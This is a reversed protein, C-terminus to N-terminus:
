LAQVFDLLAQRDPDALAEFRDVVGNAESGEARHALIAEEISKARGDHLFTRNFRLGILPATRWEFSGAEGDVSAQSPLGDALDNGMRHLLLDSYVEADIGALEPIPYDSRTRLAPVHCASCQTSEFLQAGRADTNRTPIALLRIYTARLNVSRYDVDVGPKDDDTLGDPNAFEVPRLPSTIGMDGQFADATFDDLTAVRAKLGFRGIVTQGKQYSHFSTDENPESAYAVRNARGHIADGRAAQEAEIREIESDAIAEIYGRGIVPPGLRTTVKVNPQGEPPLIPTPKLGSGNLGAVGLPHVTHGFALMSQDAAPTVGDSEVVSMKSVLGPGRVGEAHCSDCSSRTYLPGLGDAPRLPTGFLLDGDNFGEELEASLGAIPADFVDVASTRVPATSGPRELGDAD